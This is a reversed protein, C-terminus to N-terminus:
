ACDLLAPQALHVKFRLEYLEMEAKDLELM